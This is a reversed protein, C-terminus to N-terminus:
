VNLHEKVLKFTDDRTRGAIHWVEGCERCHYYAYYGEFSNTQIYNTADGAYNVDWITDVNRQCVEVDDITCSNKPDIHLKAGSDGNENM